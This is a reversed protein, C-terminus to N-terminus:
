GRFKEFSNEVSCPDMWYSTCMHQSYGKTDWTQPTPHAEQGPPDAEQLPLPHLILRPSHTMLM